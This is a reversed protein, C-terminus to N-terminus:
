NVRITQRLTASRYDFAADDFSPPGFRGTANNSAGVPERPLGLFNSDLEGDGDADHWVAV